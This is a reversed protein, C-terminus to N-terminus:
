SECPLVLRVRTGRGCPGVQIEGALARVQDALDDVAPRSPQPADDQIILRLAGEGDSGSVSVRTAGSRRAEAIAAAVALYATTEVTGTYRGSPVDDVAIALDSSSEALDLVAGALGSDALVAPYIGRAVRRLEELTARTLADARATRDAAEADTRNALMRVMLALSVMRQQAGDHLNRELRRRELQAREVIRTRSLRLETLEALTAARLQENELALRLAAGLARDLRDGDVSAAHILSAIPQGRRTVTTVRRGDSAQPVDVPRGEADVYGGREPGWYRVELLPDPVAERLVDGLSGVEPSSRLRGALRTLQMSLRWQLLRDRVLLFALGISGAQALLFLALYPLHTPAEPVALRLVGPSVSGVVLAWTALQRGRSAGHRDVLCVAGGGATLLVGVSELWSGGQASGAILLPNHACSRWCHPDLFPDVLLLRAGAALVGGSVALLVAGRRHRAATSMGLVVLAPLMRGWADATTTLVPPGSAWGAAEPVLWTAGAVALAVGDPGPPTLSAVTLLATAGLVELALLWWGAGGYTSGTSAPLTPVTALLVAVGIPWCLARIARM